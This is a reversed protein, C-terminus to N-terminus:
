VSLQDILPEIVQLARQVRGALDGTVVVHRIGLEHLLQRLERDVAAQYDPDRDRVGDPVLPIEIPLYLVCDVERLFLRSLAVMMDDFGSPANSNARVYALFDVIFRDYILIPPATSLLSDVHQTVFAFYSELTCQRGLPLGQAAIRRAVEDIIHPKYGRKLLTQQIGHCLSTKGTCHTGTVVIRLPEAQRRNKEM